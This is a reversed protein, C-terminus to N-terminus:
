KQATLEATILIMDWARRWFGVYVRGITERMGEGEHKPFLFGPDATDPGSRQPALAAATAGRSVKWVGEKERKNRQM